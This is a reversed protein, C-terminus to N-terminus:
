PTRVKHTEVEFYSHRDLLEQSDKCQDELKAKFERAQKLTSFTGEIIAWEPGKRLVIYIKM